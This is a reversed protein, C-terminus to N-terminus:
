GQRRAEAIADPFGAPDFVRGQIQMLVRPEAAAGNHAGPRPAAPPAHAIKHDGNEIDELVLVLEKLAEAAAPRRYPDADWCESVLRRLRPPCRAADVDLPLRQGLVAVKYAMHFVSHDEWPWRGTLMAWLLVGLSYMDTGAEPTMTSATLARVRSLGFDALKATPRDTDAGNILVNAPKLDRHIITPHLYELGRCIQIGIRLLKPLPILSVAPGAGHPRGRRGAAGDGRGYILRELSTECLEMVMCLRPPVLCAALLRVVNPHDCRGLVTVETMLATADEGDRRGPPPKGSAKGPLAAGAGAAEAAKAGAETAADAKTAEAAAEGHDGERKAARDPCPRGGGGDGGGNAGDGDGGRGAGGDGAASQQEFRHGAPGGSGQIQQFSAQTETGRFLSGYKGYTEPRLFSSGGAAGAGAGMCGNTGNTVCAAWDSLIVKVAVRQGQYVGEYVRGYNGKGLTVPLLTVLSASDGSGRGSGGDVDGGGSDNSDHAVANGPAERGAGAFGVRMSGGIGCGLAIALHHGRRDGDKGPAGAAGDGATFNGGAGGEDPAARGIGGVLQSVPGWAAVPPSPSPGVECGPAGYHNLCSAPLVHACYGTWNTLHILYGTPMVTLDPRVDAGYLVVDICRYSWAYCREAPPAAADDTCGAPQALPMEYANTGPFRPPRSGMPSKAALMAQELPLCVPTVVGGQDSWVVAQEGPPMAALWEAGAARNFIIRRYNITVMRRLTLTTGNGLRIKDRCYGYDFTILHEATGM